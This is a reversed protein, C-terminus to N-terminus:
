DKFNLLQLVAIQDDESLREELPNNRKGIENNVKDSVNLFRMHPYNFTVFHQPYDVLSFQFEKTVEDFRFNFYKNLERYENNMYWKKLLQNIFLSQNNIVLEKVYNDQDVICPDICINGENFIPVYHCQTIIDYDKVPCLYKGVYEVNFNILNVRFQNSIQVYPSGVTPNLETDHITLHIYKPKSNVYKIAKEQTDFVALAECSSNKSYKDPNYFEVVVFVKTM